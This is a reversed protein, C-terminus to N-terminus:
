AGAQTACPRRRSHDGAARAKTDLPHKRVFDKRQGAHLLFRRDLPRDSSVSNSSSGASAVRRATGTSPRFAWSPM